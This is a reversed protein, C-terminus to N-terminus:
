PAYGAVEYVGGALRYLRGNEHSTYAFTQMRTCAAVVLDATSGNARHLAADIGKSLTAALEADDDTAALVLFRWRSIAIHQSNTRVDQRSQATVRIAPIAAESPIVDLHVTPLSQAELREKIWRAAELENPATDSM